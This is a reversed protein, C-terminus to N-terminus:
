LDLFSLIRVRGPNAPDYIVTVRDGEAFFADSGGRGHFEIQRGQQMTFHMVPAYSSREVDRSRESGDSRRVEEQETCRMQRIEVVTGQARLSRDSLESREARPPRV